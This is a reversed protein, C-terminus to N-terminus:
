EGEDGSENPDRSARFARRKGMRAREREIINRAQKQLRHVPAEGAVADQKAQGRRPPLPPPLSLNHLSRVWEKLDRLAQTMADVQDDFAGSPFVSCNHVLIGNAFYEEAEEVHLNYVDETGVEAAFSTVM